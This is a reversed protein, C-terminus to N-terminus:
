TLRQLKNFITGLKSQKLVVAGQPCVENCCWCRICRRHNIQAKRNVIKITKKPCARVCDGCGVCRDLNVEPRPLLYHGFRDRWSKPVWSIAILGDQVTSPAPPRFDPLKIESLSLGVVQPQPLEGWKFLPVTSPPLGVIQSITWDVALSDQGALLLGIHRPNGWAPGNGEMGVIGDVVTLSPKLCNYIDLLLLSFQDPNQFRSHYAVKMVGPVTGYLVKVAGTIKTFLHTKLKPITIIRDAEWLTKVLHLHKIQRGQPYSVEQTRTDYNLDAGTDYAVKEMGTMKYVTRLYSKNFIGAPSDGIVVKAGASRVQKVVAKVVAPHTTVHKEPPYPGALNPKLFVLQGPQVFRDIGGLLNLAEAVATDVKAEAYSDCRVAAVKSM